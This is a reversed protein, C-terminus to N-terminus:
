MDIIVFARIPNMSSSMDDSDLMDERKIPKVFNFAYRVCQTAFRIDLLCVDWEFNM